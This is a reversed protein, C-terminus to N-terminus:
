RGGTQAGYLFFAGAPAGLYRGYLRVKQATRANSIVGILLPVELRDANTKAFEILAKANHSRRYDPHVYNFLEELIIDASYWMRSIRLYIMGELQERSGIVGLCSQVGNVGGIVATEVSPWDVNVAGNEAYLLRCLEMIANFDEPVALRVRPFRDARPQTIAQVSM